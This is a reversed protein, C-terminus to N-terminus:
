FIATFSENEETLYEITKDKNPADPLGIEIFGVKNYPSLKFTLHGTKFNTGAKYRGGRSQDIRADNIPVAYANSLDLYTNNELKVTECYAFTRNYIDKVM